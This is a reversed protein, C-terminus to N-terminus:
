AAASRKLSLYFLAVLASLDLVYLYRYDCAISIVFFSVTFGFAGLLLGAMAIDAAGRRRLLVILCGLALAAFALHSWVPTGLFAKAYTELARDRADHRPALGLQRLMAAPAEIGTFVPRCAVIDPTAFVQVFAAARVRLYLWPHQVILARWQAMLAETDAERSNLARRVLPDSMVPDNRLPTYLGAGRTRIAAAMGPDDDALLDMTLDPERAVAGSLDYLALVHLQEQPGSDGNGRLELLRSAADSLAPVAVLLLVGAVAARRVPEGQRLAIWGLVGAAFPVLVLGNQRVLAALTLALFSAALWGARARGGREAALALCVFGAVAADAFLVDKWVMGQYLLGQPLLVIAAAAAVSSWRARGLLLLAALAGFALAADFVVFLGPGRVIGDFLGLLWAMAPPHWTNYLGARGELLQEVSDFSLHGPWNIAIAAVFGGALVAAAARAPQTM